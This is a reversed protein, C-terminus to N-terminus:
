LSCPSPVEVDYTVHVEQVASEAVNNFSNGTYSHMLSYPPSKNRSQNNRNVQRKWHWLEYPQYAACSPCFHRLTYPKM